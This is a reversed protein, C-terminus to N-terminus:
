QKYGGPYPDNDAISRKLRADAVYYNFIAQVANTEATVLANQATIVDIITGAGEKRSATAAEFNKQAAKVALDTSAIQDRAEERGVWANEVDLQIQQRTQEYQLRAQELLAKQQRVAARTNGADFLPYSFSASFVRNEGPDPDIRYGETISSQIVPGANIQAIKVDHRQEDISAAGRKLDLRRAFAIKLYDGSTKTDHEDAPRPPLGAPLTIPTMSIIGMANKLNVAALRVNNQAVILQFQANNYDAEAQLTDKAPATGAQVFARTADLTTKARDVSSEAVRVLERQRMVEYWSTAINEIVVQRTDYVQFESSKVGYKSALVNEERKFTDFLLMQAGIQTISSEVTGTQKVGNFTQSTKEATYSYTPAISPYYSALAQTLRAKSLDVGSRSIGISPQNQLGIQIARELDLPQSLDVPQPQQRPERKDAYAPILALAALAFLVGPRALPIM